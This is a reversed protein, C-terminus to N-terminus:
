IIEWNTGNSVLELVDGASTFIWETLGNDDYMVQGSMTVVKVTNTLDKAKVRYVVGEYVAEADPLTIIVSASTGDANVTFDKALMQYDATKESYSYTDSIFNFKEVWVGFEKRWVTGNSQLYYDDTAGIDTTPDDEGDYWSVGDGSGQNIIVGDIPLIETGDPVDDVYDVVDDILDIIKQKPWALDDVETRRAMHYMGWYFALDDRRKKLKGSVRLSKNDTSDNYNQDLTKYAQYITNSFNDWEVTNTGNTTAEDKVWLYSYGDWNEVMYTLPTTISYGYEGTYVNPGLVIDNDSETVDSLGTETPWSVTFVRESDIANVPSGYSTQDIFKITSTEIDVDISLDIEPTTHNLTPNKTRTTFLSSGGDTSLKYEVKYAGQVVGSANTTMAFDMDWSGAELDPSSFDDSDYGTNKHLVQGLPDTIKLLGKVDAETVNAYTEYDSQIKDEVTMTQTTLDFIVKFKIYSELLTQAM